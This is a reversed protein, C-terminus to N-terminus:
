HLANICIAWSLVVTTCVNFNGSMNVAAGLIARETPMAPPSHTANMSMNPHSTKELTHSTANGPIDTPPPTLMDMRPVSHFSSLFTDEKEKPGDLSKFTSMVATTVINNGHTYPKGEAMDKVTSTYVPSVEPSLLRSVQATATEEEEEEPQKDSTDFQNRRSFITSNISDSSVQTRELHSTTDERHQISPFSDAKPEETNNVDGLPEGTSEIWISGSLEGSGEEVPSKSSHTESDSASAMPTTVVLSHELMQSDKPLDSPGSLLPVPASTLGSVDGSVLEQLLSVIPTPSRSTLEGSFVGHDEYGSAEFDKAEATPQHTGTTHTVFTHTEPMKSNTDPSLKFYKDDIYSDTHALQKEGETNDVDANLIGLNHSPDVQTERPSTEIQRHNSISINYINVTNKQVYSNLAKEEEPDLDKESFPTPHSKEPVNPKHLHSASESVAQASDTLNDTPYANETDLNVFPVDFIADGPTSKTPADVSEEVKGRNTEHFSSILKHEPVSGIKDASSTEQHSMTTNEMRVAEESGALSYVSHEEDQETNEPVDSESLNKHSVASELTPTPLHLPPEQDKTLSINIEEAGDSQKTGNAKNLPITDVSGQAENEAKVESMKLEEFSETVTIINSVGEVPAPSIDKSDETLFPRTDNWQSAKDRFCYVDYRDLSDPFGTQNRFQFITKVGPSNGGCRERPTIIPYRVSGDSLWGPSCHDLGESWAAYLQGTTAM